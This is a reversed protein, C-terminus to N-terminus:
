RAKNIFNNQFDEWVEPAFDALTNDIIEGGDQLIVHAFSTDYKIYDSLFDKLRKFENKLWDKYKEAMILFMMERPWNVPEIKYVWGDAYPSDNILSSDGTLAENKEIITGSVPAYINLQKGKHVLTCLQEGKKISEGPKKMEVRTLTGTVHQLFDDIGLKVVGTEDMFAWTHTVDFFLGKPVVVSDANFFVQNVSVPALDKVYTIHQYVSNVIFGTIVIGLLFLLFFIVKSDAEQPKNASILFDNLNDLQVQKESYALNYFGNTSLYQQGDTLIWKLFATENENAQQSSSVSYINHFLTKPYKGIWVGRSFTNVNDYIKEMYDLRGNGNRDIPLLRFKDMINQNTVDVINTLRCFGIAYPDKLIDGTMEEENQVIIGALATKGANLFNTVSSIVSKDSIMYYHVPTNQNNKLLTGWNQKGDLTLSLALNEPSIGKQYIETLYPNESNFVPVIVDRGLTLKRVQEANFDALYNDPIIKIYKDAESLRASNVDKLNIVKIKLYPNLKFFEGAWKTTINYLDPSSMINISGELPTKNKGETVQGSIYTNNLALLGLILIITNKM